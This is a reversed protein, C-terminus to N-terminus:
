LSRRYWRYTGNFFIVHRNFLMIALLLFAGVGGGVLGGVGGFLVVLVVSLWGVTVLIRMPLVASEGVLGFKGLKGVAKEAGCTGCVTALPKVNNGCYPCTAHSTGQALNIEQGEPGTITVVSASKDAASSKRGFSLVSLTVVTGVLLPLLFFQYASSDLQRYEGASSSSLWSWVSFGRQLGIAILGVGVFLVIKSFIKKMNRIGYGSLMMYRSYFM